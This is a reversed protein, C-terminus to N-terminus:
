FGTMNKLQAGADTPMMEENDNNKYAAAERESSVAYYAVWWDVVLRSTGNMWAIPDDIGLDKCITFVSDLRPNSKIENM